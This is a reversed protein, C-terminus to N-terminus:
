EYNRFTGRDSFAMKDHHNKIETVISETCDAFDFNYTKTFKSTDMTFSYNNATDPLVVSETKLANTVSNAIDKVRLCFSALNYIGSRPSEIVKIVAESLDSLGLIPRQIGLNNIYFKGDYLSKKVMSNIMLDERINPSWGNVTGFRLGVINYGLLIYKEAILDLNYKTLDYHNIPIFKLNSDETVSLNNNGYVSGSSSYILTQQPDIKELLTIFNLVNNAWSSKLDGACMKVSSHGALLIITDFQKLFIKSLRNFDIKESEKYDQGYWCLDVSSVNHISKLEILLRSGIYGNGGIILVNKKNPM